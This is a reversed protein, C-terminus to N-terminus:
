KDRGLLKNAEATLYAAEEQTWTRKPVAKTLGELYAASAAKEMSEPTRLYLCGCESRGLSRSPDDVFPKAGGVPVTDSNLLQRASELAMGELYYADSRHQHGDASKVVLWGEALHAPFDVGSTETVNLNRLQRQRHSHERKRYVEDFDPTTAM